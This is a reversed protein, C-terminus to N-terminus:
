LLVSPWRIMVVHLKKQQFKEGEGKSGGKWCVKDAFTHGVRCGGLCGRSGCSRYWLLLGTDVVNALSVSEERFSWTVFGKALALANTVLARTNKLVAELSSEEMSDDM